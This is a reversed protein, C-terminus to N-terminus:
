HQATIDYVAPRSLGGPVQPNRGSISHYPRALACVDAPDNLIFVGTIVPVQKRDAADVALLDIYRYTRGLVRQRTSLPDTRTTDDGSAVLGRQQNPTSNVEVLLVSCVSRERDVLHTPVAEGWADSPTGASM